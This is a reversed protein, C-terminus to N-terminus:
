KFKKESHHDVTLLIGHFILQRRKVLVNAFFILMKKIGGWLNKTHTPCDLFQFQCIGHFILQRRKIVHVNAFFILMKKYGGLNKTHTHPTDLFQFQCIKAVNEFSWTSSVPLNKSCNLFELDLLLHWDM